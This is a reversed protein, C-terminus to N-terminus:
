QEAAEVLASALLDDPGLHNAVVWQKDPTSRRKEAVEDRLRDVLVGGFLLHPQVVVRRFRGAAAQGLVDSVTPEAMAMLATRFHPYGVGLAHRRAFEDFEALAEPDRSGRGVIVLLTQDLPIPSSERM